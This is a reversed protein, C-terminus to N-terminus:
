TGAFEASQNNTFYMRRTRQRQNARKFEEAIHRRFGNPVVSVNM